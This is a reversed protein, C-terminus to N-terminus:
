RAFSIRTGVCDVVCHLFYCLFNRLNLTAAFEPFWLVSVMSICIFPLLCEGKLLSGIVPQFVAFRVTVKLHISGQHEIITTSRRSYKVHGYALPVGNLRFLVLFKVICHTTFITVLFIICCIYKTNLTEITLKFSPTDPLPCLLLLPDRDLILGVVRSFNGGGM